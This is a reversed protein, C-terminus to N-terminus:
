RRLDFIVLRHNQLVCRFNSRLYNYFGTYYDFWWFAPWGFVIFNVGSRRMQELEQIATEDNQPNGWHLGEREIFPLAHCKAVYERFEINEDVLIFTQGPPVVTAIKQADVQQQETWTLNLSPVLLRILDGRKRNLSLLREALWVRYSENAARESQMLYVIAETLEAATSLPKTGEIALFDREKVQEPHLRVQALEQGIFVLDYRAAMRIYLNLDLMQKSHTAKFPGVTDLASSRMVVAAPHPKWNLGSVLLHLYELGEILGDPLNGADQLRISRGDVDIHRVIGASFAASPYMDLAEVSNGIFKASVLDDDPVITLYPRTNIELARNWNGFLGINTENRIFSIRPDKFSSVVAETQDTSANDLVVIQFDTYDQTLISELCGKLLRSRNYTPIVIMVKTKPMKSIKHINTPKENINEAGRTDEIENFWGTKELYYRWKVKAPHEYNLHWPKNPGTFHYIHPNHLLDNRVARIEEKFTSAAWRAYSLISSQVNWKPDLMGWDGALVANLGEQDEFNLYKRYERLYRFVKQSINEARWRELNLVLVGANFYPM